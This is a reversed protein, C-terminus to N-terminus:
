FIDSVFPNLAWLAVVLNRLGFYPVPETSFEPFSQLEDHEMGDPRICFAISGNNPVNFPIM